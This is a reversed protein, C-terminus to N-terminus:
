QQLYYSFIVFNIYIYPMEDYPIKGTIVFYNELKMKKIMRKFLEKQEGDGVIIFVTKSLITKRLKVAAWLLSYIGKHTVLRGAFLITIKNDPISLKNKYFSIQSLDSLPFFRDTDIAPYIHVIKEEPIGAIILSKKAKQTAAIFFDVKELAKEAIFTDKENFLWKYPITEWWRVIIKYSFFKKLESVTYLSRSIDQTYIVHYNELIKRLSFFYYDLRPFKNAKLRKISLIPNKLANILEKRHTLIIKNLYINSHDSKNKEGIFVTFNLNNYQNHKLAYEFIITQAKSVNNDLLIAINM